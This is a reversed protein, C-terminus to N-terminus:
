FTGFVRLGAQGQGLMPSVRVSAAGYPSSSKESEQESVVDYILWGVGGAVLAGGVVYSVLSITAASSREDTLEDFRELSTGPAEREEDIGPIVSLDYFMGVGLVVVGTGALAIAPINVGKSEKKKVLPEDKPKDDPVNTQDPPTPEEKPDVLLTSPKLNYAERKQAQGSEIILKTRLSDYGELESTLAYQGPKIAITEFPTVGVEGGDLFLKAGSPTTELIVRGSLDDSFDKCGKRGRKLDRNADKVLEAPADPLQAFAKLYALTKVCDGKKEYSRAINYILRPDPRLRNAEQLGAVAADYDGKDFAEKAAGIVQVFREDVDEDQAVAMAPAGCLALALGVPVLGSVVRGFRPSKYM